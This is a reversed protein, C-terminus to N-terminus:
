QPWMSFFAIRSTMKNAARVSPFYTAGWPVLADRQSTAMNVPSWTSCVVALVALMESFRGALVLAIALRQNPGVPYTPYSDKTTFFSLFFIIMSLVCVIYM